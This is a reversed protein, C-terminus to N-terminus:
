ATSHLERWPKEFLEIREPQGLLAAFERLWLRIYSVDLRDQQRYVVGEIDAVDQPRGAVAKHIILDEASCLRVVQGPEIEYHVTRRMMEDEYGPLALSIDVPCGNSAHILVVRTRRAFDLPDPHRSHFREVIARVVPESEDLPVAITLDVDETLRPRGWFQVAIGGIIGYPIGARTLFQHLEWAAELQPNV